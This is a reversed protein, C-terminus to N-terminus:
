ENLYSQIGQDNLMAVVARHIAGDVGRYLSGGTTNDGKFIRMNGNGDEVELNVVVRFVWMAEIEETSVIALKLSKGADISTLMGRDKLAEACVTIATDTMQRYNGVWRHPYDETLIHKTEDTQVNVLNISGQTQLEPVKDLGITYRHPDPVYNHVRTCGAAFLLVFLLCIIIFLSRSM